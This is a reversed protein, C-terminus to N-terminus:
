IGVRIGGGLFFKPMDPANDPRGFSWGAGTLELILHPLLTIELSAGGGVGIGDREERDWVPVYRDTGGDDVFYGGIDFRSEVRGLGAEVFPRLVARGKALELALGAMGATVAINDPALRLLGLQWSLLPGFRRSVTIRGSPLRSELYPELSIGTQSIIDPPSLPKFWAVGITTEYGSRPISRPALRRQFVASVSATPSRSFPRSPSRRPERCTTGCSWAPSRGGGISSHM